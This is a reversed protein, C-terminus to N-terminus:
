RETELVGDDRLTRLVKAVIADGHKLLVTETLELTVVKDSVEISRWCIPPSRLAADKWPGVCIAMFRPEPSSGQEFYYFRAGTEDDLDPVRVPGKGFSGPHTPLWRDRSSYAAAINERRIASERSDTSSVMALTEDGFAVLGRLGTIKYLKTGTDDPLGPPVLFWPLGVEEAQDNGRCGFVALIAVFLAVFLSSSKKM